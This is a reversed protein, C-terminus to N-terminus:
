LKKKLHMTQPYPIKNKFFVSLVCDTNSSCFDLADLSLIIHNGIERNKFNLNVVRKQYNLTSSQTHYNIM